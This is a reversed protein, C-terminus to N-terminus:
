GIYRGFSSGAPAPLSSPTLCRKGPRTFLSVVIDHAMPMFAELTQKVDMDEQMTANDCIDHLQRAM